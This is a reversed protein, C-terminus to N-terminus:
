EAAFRAHETRTADVWGPAIGRDLLEAVLHALGHGPRVALARNCYERARAGSGEWWALLGLVALGDCRHKRRTASTAIRMVGCVSELIGPDPVCPTGAGTVITRMVSAIDGPSDGSEAVNPIGLARAACRLIVGDRVGVDRLSTGLKAWTVPPIDAFALPVDGFRAVAADLVGDWLDLSEATWREPHSRRAVAWRDGARWVRQSEEPRLEPVDGLAQRSEGIVAGHAVMTASVQTTSLDGVARDTGWEFQSRDLAEPDARSFRDRCVWWVQVESFRGCAAVLPRVANEWTGRSESYVVVISMVAGDRQLFDGLAQALRGDARLDSLDARAIVGLRHRHGRLSVVVASDSPHYGIQYPIFALLERPDSVRVINNM